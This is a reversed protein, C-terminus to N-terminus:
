VFKRVNNRAGSQEQEDAIDYSAEQMHWPCKICSVMGVWAMEQMQISKWWESLVLPYQLGKSKGVCEKWKM